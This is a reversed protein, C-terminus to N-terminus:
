AAGFFAEPADGVKLDWNAFVREYLRQVHLGREEIGAYLGGDAYTGNFQVYLDSDALQSPEAGFGVDWGAAQSKLRLVVVDLPEADYEKLLGEYRPGSKSKLWLAVDGAVKFWQSVQLSAIGPRFNESVRHLAAEVISLCNALSKSGDSFTQPQLLNMEVHYKNLGVNVFGTENFLNVILAINSLAPGPILTFAEMPVQFQENFAQYFVEVVRWWTGALEFLPVRFTVDYAVKTQVPSILM